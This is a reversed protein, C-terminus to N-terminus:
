PSGSSRAEKPRVGGLLYRSVAIGLMAGAVIDSPHHRGVVVRAIAILAALILLAVRWRPYWAGIMMAVAFSTASEASPFSQFASNHLYGSWEAPPPETTWPRPRHVIVKVINAALGSAAFSVLTWVGARRLRPSCAAGILIMALALPAQVYGTGLMRITHNIAETLRSDHLPRVAILVPGDVAFGLALLGAMAIWFLTARPKAIQAATSASTDSSM